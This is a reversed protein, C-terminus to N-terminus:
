SIQKTIQVEVAAIVRLISRIKEKIIEDSQIGEVGVEEYYTFLIGCVSEHVIALTNFSLDPLLRYLSEEAEKVEKIEDVNLESSKDDLDEMEDENFM